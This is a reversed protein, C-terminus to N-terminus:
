LPGSIRKIQQEIEQAASLRGQQRYIKDMTRLTRLLYPSTSGYAAKEWLLAKRYLPEADYFRGAATYASALNVLAHALNTSAPDSGLNFGGAGGQWYALASFFYMQANQVEGVSLYLKGLSTYIRASLGSNPMGMSPQDILRYDEIVPGLSMTSPQPQDNLVNLAKQYWMLANGFDNNVRYTEGLLFLTSATGPSNPAQQLQMIAQQQLQLQDAADKYTPGSPGEHPLDDDTPAADDTPAQDDTPQRDDTANLTGPPPPNVPSGGGTLEAARAPARSLQVSLLLLLIARAQKIIM